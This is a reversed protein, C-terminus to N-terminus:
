ENVNQDLYIFIKSFFDDTLSNVILLPHNLFCYPYKKFFTKIDLHKTDAM